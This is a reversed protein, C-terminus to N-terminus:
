EEDQVAAAISLSAISRRVTGPEGDASIGNSAQNVADHNEDRAASKSADRIKDEGIDVKDPQTHRNTARRGFDETSSDNSARVDRVHPQLNDRDINKNRASEEEVSGSALESDEVVQIRELPDIRAEQAKLEEVKAKVDPIAYFQLDSASLFDGERIAKDHKERLEELREQASKLNRAYHPTGSDTPFPSDLEGTPSSVLDQHSNANFTTFERLTSSIIDEDIKNTNVLPSRASRIGRRVGEVFVRERNRSARIGRKVGEVFVREPSSEEDRPLGREREAFFPKERFSARKGRLDKLKRLRGLSEARRTEFQSDPERYERLREFVPRDSKESLKRVPRHHEEWDSSSDESEEVIVYENRRRNSRGRLRRRKDDINHSDTPRRPEQIVILSSGRRDITFDERHRDRPRVILEDRERERDPERYMPRAADSVDTDRATEPIIYRGAETFGGDREASYTQRDREFGYDDIGVFEIMSSEQEDGHDFHRYHTDSGRVFSDKRPVYRARRGDRRDILDLNRSQRPFNERTAPEIPSIKSPGTEVTQYATRARPVPIRVDLDAYEHSVTPNRTLQESLNNVKSSDAVDLKSRSYGRKVDATVNLNRLASTPSSSKAKTGAYEYFTEQMKWKPPKRWPM